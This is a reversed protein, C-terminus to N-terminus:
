KGSIVRYTKFDLMGAQWFVIVGLYVFITLFIISALGSVHLFKVLFDVGDGFTYLFFRVGDGILYIWYVFFFRVGDGILYIWFFVIVM